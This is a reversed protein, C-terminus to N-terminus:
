FFKEERKSEGKYCTGKLTQELVIIYHKTLSARFSSYLKLGAGEFVFM